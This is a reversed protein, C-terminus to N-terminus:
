CSSCTGRPGAESSRVRLLDRGSTLYIFSYNEVLYRNQEDRLAGFPVLNLAGDPSILFVQADGALKRISRMLKEDCDELFASYAGIGGYRVQNVTLNLTNTRIYKERNSLESLRRRVYTIGRLGEVAQRGIREEAAALGCALAGAREYSKVVELRKLRLQVPTTTSDPYKDQALRLAACLMSVYRPAVTTTTFGPLIKDALAIYGLQFGLVDVSGSAPDLADYSTLFLQFDSSGLTIM